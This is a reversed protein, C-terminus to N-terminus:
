APCARLASPATTVLVMAVTLVMFLRTGFEVLTPPVLIVAAFRFRRQCRLLLRSGGIDMRVSLDRVPGRKGRGSGGIFGHLSGADIVAFMSATASGGGRRSGKVNGDGLPRLSYTSGGASSWGYAIGCKHPRLASVELLPEHGDGTRDAGRRSLSRGLVFDLTRPVAARNEKELRETNGDGMEQM